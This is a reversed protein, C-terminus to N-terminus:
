DTPYFAGKNHYPKQPVLYPTLSSHRLFTLREGCPEEAGEGVSVHFQIYAGVFPDMSPEM